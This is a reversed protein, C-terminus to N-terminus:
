RWPSSVGHRALFDYYWDLERDTAEDVGVGDGDECVLIGIAIWHWFWTRVWAWTWRRVAM